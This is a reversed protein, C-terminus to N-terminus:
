CNIEEKLKGESCLVYRKTSKEDQFRIPIIELNYYTFNDNLDFVYFKEDNPTMEENEKYSYLIYKGLNNIADVGDGIQNNLYQTLDHTAVEQGPSTSAMIIMGEINFKGNNKITINLQKNSCDQNKLMLSTGLPCDLSNSPVYTKLHNYVIVAMIIGLTILLIYGVM